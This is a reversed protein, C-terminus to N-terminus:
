SSMEDKSRDSEQRTGIPMPSVDRYRGPHAFILAIVALTIPFYDLLAFLIENSSAPGLVGDAAEGLRFVTRAFILFAAAFLCLLSSTSAYKSTTQFRTSRCDGQEGRHSFLYVILIVLFVITSFTQVALGAILIDNFKKPDEANSEAAGIGAAGAIQMVTTVVDSTIFTALIWRGRILQSLCLYISASYLVPSVVIMFYQVVFWRVDYPDSHALIRFAYGVIELLCALIVMSWFKIRYRIALVLHIIALLAYTAIAVAPFVLNPRYGFIIIGADNPGGPSPFNPDIYGRGSSM